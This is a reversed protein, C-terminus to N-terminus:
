LLLVAVIREAALHVDTWTGALARVTVLDRGAATLQGTVGTADGDVHVSIQPGEPALGALVELLRVDRRLGQVAPVAGPAAERADPSTARGPVPSRQEPGARVASIAARRLLLSLGTEAALAVFDAGVAIATGRHTRGDRTTVVVGARADVLGHLVGALTQEERDAWRLAARRRRATAADARSVADLMERLALEAPDAAARGASLDPADDPGGTRGDAAM